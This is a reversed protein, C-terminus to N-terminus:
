SQCRHEADFLSLFNNHRFIHLSLVRRALVICPLVKVGLAHWATPVNNSAYYGLYTLPWM